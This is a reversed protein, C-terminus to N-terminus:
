LPGDLCRQWSLVEDSGRRDVVRQAKGLSRELTVPPQMAVQMSLGVTDKIRTTIVRAEEELVAEDVHAHAEVEVTVEDMRGERTPVLRYHACLMPSQLLYPEIQAPFLNVGRIILMDDSRGTIKEMRWMTHATVPLLRTLDRARYRIVPVAEKTLSTFVLEGEPLVAGTDPNIVEPSFHDERITPGDKTEVCDNAVGPGIVESVGYIDVADIAFGQEIERRM